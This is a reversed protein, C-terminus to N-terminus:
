VAVRDIIGTIAGTEAGAPPDPARLEGEDSKSGDKSGAYRTPFTQDREIPMKRNWRELIMEQVPPRSDPSVTYDYNAPVLDPGWQKLSREAVCRVAAYDDDLLRALVPAIWETGSTQLAPKWGFHWAMLARQGADGSVGLRVSDAIEGQEASFRPASQRGM